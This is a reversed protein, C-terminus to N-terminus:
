FHIRRNAASTAPLKVAFIEMLQCNMMPVVIVIIIWRIATVPFQQAQIAMVIFVLPLQLSM